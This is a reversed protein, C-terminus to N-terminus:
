SQSIQVQRQSRRSCSRHFCSRRTIPSVCHQRYASGQTTTFVWATSESAQGKNVVFAKGGLGGAANRVVVTQDPVQSAPFEVIKGGVQVPLLWKGSPSDVLATSEVALHSAPPALEVTKGTDTKVVIYEGKSGRVIVQGKHDEVHLGKVDWHEGAPIDFAKKNWLVKGLNGVDLGYLRGRRTALIVLKNFGFSDRVLEGDHSSIETGLISSILRSPVKQLYDPLHQLENIHRKVRHIYAEM